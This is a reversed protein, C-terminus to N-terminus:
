VFVLCLRLCSVVVSDDGFFEFFSVYGEGSGGSCLRPALKFGFPFPGEDDLCFMRRHRCARKVM